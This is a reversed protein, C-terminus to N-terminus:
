DKNKAEKSKRLTERLRKEGWGEELMKQRYNKMGEKDPDRGLIDQYARTIITDVDGTKNENSRKLEKRVDKESWNNDVMKSRYVRLGEEDPKRGLVDEYAATVAKTAAESSIARAPLATLACLACSCFPILLWRRM